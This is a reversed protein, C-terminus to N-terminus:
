LKMGAESPVLLAYCFCFLSGWLPIAADNSPNEATSGWRACECLFEFTNYHCRPASRRRGLGFHVGDKILHLKLLKMPKKPQHKLCAMDQSSKQGCTNSSPIRKM